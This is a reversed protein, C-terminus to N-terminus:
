RCYDITCVGGNRSGGAAVCARWAVQQAKWVFAGNASGSVRNTSRAVCYFALASSPVVSIVMLGVLTAVFIRNM